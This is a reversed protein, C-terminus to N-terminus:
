VGFGDVVYGVAWISHAAGVVCYLGSAQQASSVFGGFVVYQKVTRVFSCRRLRRISSSVSRSFAVKRFASVYWPTCGRICYGISSMGVCLNYGYAMCWGGSRPSHVAMSASGSDLHYRVERPVGCQTVICHGGRRFSPSVVVGFCTLIGFAVNQFRM